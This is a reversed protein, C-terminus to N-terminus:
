PLVQDGTAPQEAAPKGQAPDGRGRDVSRPRLAVVQAKPGELIDEAAALVSARLLGIREILQPYPDSVVMRRGNLLVIVTDPEAEISAIMDPNLLIKWGGRLPTVPIM